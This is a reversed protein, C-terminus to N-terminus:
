IKSYMNGQKETTYEANTSTEIFSKWITLTEKSLPPSLINMLLESQWYKIVQQLTEKNSSKNSTEEM